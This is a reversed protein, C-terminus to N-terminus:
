RREVLIDIVEVVEAFIQKLTPEVCPVHQSPDEFPHRHWTKVKDYGFVREGEFILAFNLRKNMANYYVDIFLRNEIAIRAKLFNVRRNLTVVPVDEWRQRAETQLRTLFNDLEQEYTQM